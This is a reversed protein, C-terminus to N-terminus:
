IRVPVARAQAVSRLRRGFWAGFFACVVSAALTFSSALLSGTGVLALQLVPTGAGLTLGVVRARRAFVCALTFTSAGLALWAPLWSPQSAAEAADPMALMLATIGCLALCTVPESAASAANHRTPPLRFHPM